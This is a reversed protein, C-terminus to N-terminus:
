RVKETEQYIIKEWLLKRSAPVRENDEGGQSIRADYTAASSTSATECYDFPSIPNDATQSARLGFM